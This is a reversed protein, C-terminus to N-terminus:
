LKQRIVDAFHLFADARVIALGGQNEDGLIVVSSGAEMSFIRRADAPLEIRGADDVTGTGFFHKGKPPIDLAMNRSSDYNVLDDLSVDLLEALVACRSIDPLTEGSEWKAVTQRSIGLKEALAEQSLAKKKRLRVLNDSFM